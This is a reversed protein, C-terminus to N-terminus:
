IVNTIYAEITKSYENFIDFYIHKNEETDEFNHSYKDMFSQQMKQFPSEIVIEQLCGVVMDFYDDDM